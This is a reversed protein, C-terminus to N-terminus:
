PSGAGLRYLIWRAVTLLNAAPAHHVDAIEPPLRDGVFVRHAAIQLIDTDGPSDGVAALRTAPIALQHCLARAWRAKDRPWVHEVVGNPGLRTGIFHTVGLRRAFCEVAFEWTISAIAVTVGSRRLLAVAEESGPAFSVAQLGSTLQSLALGRYWTAMEDRAAALDAETAFGELQRMRDLRGLPEALLECVTRGRLLTGDLDFVALAPPDRTESPWEVRLKPWDVLWRKGRVRQHFLAAPYRVRPNPAVRLSWNEAIGYPAVIELRRDRGIRIGVCTPTEIWHAIAHASDRYPAHGNRLHTRAQNRAEWKVTPCRAHLASEIQTEPATGLDGPDYYVVDVDNLPTREPKAHLADWIANRLFGAAIYWDPLRLGDVAELCAMRWTDNQILRITEALM